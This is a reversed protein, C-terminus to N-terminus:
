RFRQSARPCSVLMCGPDHAAWTEEATGGPGGSNGTAVDPRVRQTVSPMGPCRYYEVAVLSKPDRYLGVHGVRARSRGFSRRALRHRRAPDSRVLSRGDILKSRMTEMPTEITVEHMAVDPLSKTRWSSGIETPLRRFSTTSTEKKRLLTAQAAPITSVRM